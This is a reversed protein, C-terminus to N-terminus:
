LLSEETEFMLLAIYTNIEEPMNIETLLPFHKFTCIKQIICPGFTEYLALLAVEKDKATPKCNFSILQQIVEKKEIFSAQQQAQKNKFLKQREGRFIPNDGIIKENKIAMAAAGLCSYGQRNFNKYFNPNYLVTFLNEYNGGRLDQLQQELADDDGKTDLDDQKGAELFNLTDSWNEQFLFFDLPWDENKLNFRESYITDRDNRIDQMTKSKVVIIEKIPEMCQTTTPLLLFLPLLFLIKKMSSVEKINIKKSKNTYLM